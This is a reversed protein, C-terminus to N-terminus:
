STNYGTLAFPQGLTTGWKVISVLLFETKTLSAEFNIRTQLIIFVFSSVIFYQHNGNIGNNTVKVIHHGGTKFQNKFGM